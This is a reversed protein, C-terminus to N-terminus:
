EKLKAVLRLWCPLVVILLPAAAAAAAAIIVVVVVIVAVDVALQEPQRPLMMRM